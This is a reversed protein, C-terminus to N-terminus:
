LRHKTPPIKHLPRCIFRKKFHKMSISIKQNLSNKCSAHIHGFVMVESESAFSKKLYAQESGRKADPFVVKQLQQVKVIGKPTTMSGSKTLCAGDTRIAKQKSLNAKRSYEFQKWSHIDLRIQRNEPGVVEIITSKEMKTSLQYMRSFRDHSSDFFSKYIYTM